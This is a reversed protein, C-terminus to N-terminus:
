KHRGSHSRSRDHFRFDHRFGWYGGPNFSTCVDSYVPVEVVQKEVVPVDAQVPQTVVTYIPADCYGYCPYGYPYGYSYGGYFWNRGGRHFFSRNGGRNGHGSGGKASAVDANAVLTLAVAVAPVAILAIKRFM